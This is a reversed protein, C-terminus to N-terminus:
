LYVNTNQGLAAKDNIFRGFVMACRYNCRTGSRQSIHKMFKGVARNKFEREEHKLIQCKENKYDSLTNEGIPKM